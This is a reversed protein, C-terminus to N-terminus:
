EEVISFGFSMPKPALKSKLMEIKETLSLGILSKEDIFGDASVHHRCDTKHPSLCIKGSLGDIHYRKAGDKEDYFKLNPRLKLVTDAPVFEESDEPMEIFWQEFCRRRVLDAFDYIENDNVGGILRTMIRIIFGTREASTIGRSINAMKDFSLFEAKVSQMTDLRIELATVGAGKVAPAMTILQAGTTSLGLETLGEIKSIDYLIDLADARMLPEHGTIIIRSFGAIVAAKAIDIAESASMERTIPFQPFSVNKKPNGSISLELIPMNM